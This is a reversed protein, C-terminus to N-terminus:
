VLNLVIFATVICNRTGNLTCNHALCNQILSREMRALNQILCATGNSFKTTNNNKYKGFKVEVVKNKEEFASVWGFKTKFSLCNM